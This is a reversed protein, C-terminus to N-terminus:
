EKTKNISLEAKRRLIDAEDITWQIALMVGVGLVFIIGVTSIGLLDIAVMVLASVAISTFILRLTKYLAKRTYIDM